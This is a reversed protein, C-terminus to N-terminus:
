FIYGYILIKIGIGIIVPVFVYLIIFKIYTKISIKILKFYVGQYVIIVLSNSISFLAIMAIPNKFIYFGIVMAVSNLILSSISSYLNIYSKRLVVVGYSLSNSLFVMLANLGLVSAFVGSMRWNKGLFIVFFEEGFIMLFVVPIIAFLITTKVLEYTFKKYERGANYDDSIRRYYVTNIPRALFRVPYELFKQCQSYYGLIVNGFYRSLLQIPIQMAYNQIVNAPLQYLSLQKNAILLKRLDSFSHKEKFPKEHLLMHIINAINSALAAILLGYEKNSKYACIYSVIFNIFSGLIPNWFLVNYLRKKNAYQYLISTFSSSLLYFYLFTIAFYYNINVKFIKFYKSFSLVVLFSITAITFSIVAVLKNIGIVNHDTNQTMIASSLGLDMISGIIVSTSLIVGYEGFNMPGYIRSIIPATIISIIQGFSLGLMIISVNKFFESKKINKLYSVIQYIKNM